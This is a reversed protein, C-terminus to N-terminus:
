LEAGPPIVVLQWLLKDLINYLSHGKKPNWSFTSANKPQGVLFLKYGSVARMRTNLGAGDIHVLHLCGRTSTIGWYHLNEPLGHHSSIDMNCTSEFADICEALM